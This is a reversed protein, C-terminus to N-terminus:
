SNVTHIKKENSPLLISLILLFMCLGFSIYFLMDCNVYIMLGFVSSGAASGIRAIMMILSMGMGSVNPPFFEFAMTGVIGICNSLSMLVTLTVIAWPVSIVFQLALCSLGPFVILAFLLKRKGVANIILSLFFYTVSFVAGITILVKFMATDIVVESSVEEIQTVNVSENSALHMIECTSLGNASDAIQQKLITPFWMYAGHSIASILFMMVCINMTHLIRSKNFLPVTQNWILEFAGKVGHVNKLSDGRGESAIRRVPYEYKPKRTNKSYMMQLIGIAKDHNGHVLVFKPTEPLIFLGILAFTRMFSFILMLLRWSEFQLGFVETNLKLPLIGMAVAPMFIMALQSFMSLMTVYKARTKSSHFEGVLNFISGQSASMIFGTLFRLVILMWINFSFVSMISTIFSISLTTRMTKARGWTDSLFGVAHSSMVVGLFGASALYGKEATTSPIDRSIFPMVVSMGTIEVVATM